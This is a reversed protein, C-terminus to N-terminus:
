FLSNGIATTAVTGESQTASYAPIEAGQEVDDIERRLPWCTLGKRSAQKVAWIILILLGLSIFVAYLIPKSDAAMSNHVKSNHIMCVQYQLTTVHPPHQFHGPHGQPFGESSATISLVSKLTRIKTPIFSSLKHLLKFKTFLVMLLRCHESLSLSRNDQHNFFVQVLCHSFLLASATTTTKFYCM